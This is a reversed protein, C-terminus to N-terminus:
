QELKFDDRHYVQIAKGTPSEFLWSGKKSGDPSPSTQIIKCGSVPIYDYGNPAHAQVEYTFQENWKNSMAKLQKQITEKEGAFMEKIEQENPCRLCLEWMETDVQKGLAFIVGIPTPIQMTISIKKKTEVTPNSVDGQKETKCSNEEFNHKEPPVGPVSPKNNRELEHETHKQHQEVVKATQEVQEVVKQNESETQKTNGSNEGTGTGGTGGTGGFFDVKSDSPLWCRLNEGNVRKRTRKWRLRRLISSVRKSMSNELKSTDVGLANLIQAVTVYDRERVYASVAETWPDEVEFDLNAEQQMETEEQTLHWKFGSQYLANAAAWIKDREQKVLNIPISGNVPIIWFRRSGTSDALIEDENTTGVLVSSRPFEKVARSYPTRFADVTSSMFKKLSSVDKKRYVTEFESWELCWFRHLKMLEDKESADGLEDTFWDVGFLEKWYTSKYTGQEGVLITATDHKCGPEKVRAVAAVLTKKMYINHIPNDSGFFRTALDDLISTDINSYALSLTDLYDIVPHYANETAIMEVVGQADGIPIDVDFELAIRLRILNLDLEKGNLEIVNKLQNLRLADGWGNRVIDMYRFLRSQREDDIDIDQNKWQEQIELRWEEITLAESVLQDFAEKGNAAIFDDVGKLDGPPLKIVMVKCGKASLERGMALLADQVPKKYMSDNDFGLYVLRGFGTFPQIWHHLRGNKRCTSVGPISMAAYDISLLCAAKKAGELIFLPISIDEIVSQWYGEIGTNLFLPCTGYGSAGLYKQTKGDKNIPSVDPKVQVGQLTAEGTLPELGSVQWCPVLESSHKWRKKENRNLTKDVERADHLSRVNLKIIEPNVASKIWENWHNSDINDPIETNSNNNILDVKLDNIRQNATTSKDEVVTIEQAYM